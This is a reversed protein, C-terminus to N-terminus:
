TKKKEEKKERRTSPHFGPWYKVASLVDWGVKLGLIPFWRGTDLQKYFRSEIEFGVDGGSHEDKLAINPSVEGQTSSATTKRSMGVKQGGGWGGVEWVAFSLQHLTGKCERKGTEPRSATGM